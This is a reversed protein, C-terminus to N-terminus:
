DYSIERWLMLSKCENCKKSNLCQTYNDNDEEFYIIQPCKLPFVNEYIKYSSRCYKKSKQYEKEIKKIIDDSLEIYEKNDKDRYSWILKSMKQNYKINIIQNYKINIIM